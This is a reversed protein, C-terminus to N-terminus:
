ATAESDVADPECAPCKACQRTLVVNGSTRIGTDEWRDTRGTYNMHAWDQPSVITCEWEEDSPKRKSERYIEAAGLVVLALCVAGVAGLAITGLINM